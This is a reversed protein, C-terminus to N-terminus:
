GFLSGLISSRKDEELTEEAAARVDADVLETAWDTDCADKM